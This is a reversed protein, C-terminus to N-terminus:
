CACHRVRTQSPADFLMGLGHYHSSPGPVCVASGCTGTPLDHFGAACSCSYGDAADVCTGGHQCPSSACDNRDSACNAGFYGPACACSYGAVRDFCTGGHLCPASACEDLETLCTGVPTDTYGAACVCTYANVGETCTGGHLCPSSACEDQSPLLM